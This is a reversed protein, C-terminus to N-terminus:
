RPKNIQIGRKAKLNRLVKARNMGVAVDHGVGKKAVDSYHRKTITDAVKQLRASAVNTNASRPSGGGRPFVEESYMRKGIAQRLLSDQRGYSVSERFPNAKGINKANVRARVINGAEVKGASFLAKAVSALKNGSVGLEAYKGRTEKPGSVIFDAVEGAKSVLNFEPNKKGKSFRKSAVRQRNRSQTASLPKGSGYGKDRAM